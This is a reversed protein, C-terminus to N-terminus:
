QQRFVLGVVFEFEFKGDQKTAMFLQPSPKYDWVFVRTTDKDMYYKIPASLVGYDVVLEDNDQRVEFSGFYGTSSQAVYKGLMEAKAVSSLSRYPPNHWFRLGCGPVGEMIPVLKDGDRWEQYSYDLIDKPVDLFVGMIYSRIHDLPYSLHGDPTQTNSMFMVGLQAEPAIGTRTVHVTTDGSKDIYAHGWQGHGVYDFGYGSALTDGDPNFQHGEILFEDMFEKNVAYKGTIMNEVTAPDKLITVGDVTGKNLILRLLTALDDSSSLTSGSAIKHGEGHGNLQAEPAYVLDYPGLLEGGCEFHGYSTDNDGQADFASGFTHTMGLPDWIREKLYVDWEQGSVSKIVQGLIAFNANAYDHGGRLAHAPEIFALNTVLEEDTPYIGFFRGIDPLDNLGSNMACLDGITVYKEAYKDYLEFTPFHKKVPDDWSLKGEEVMIALGFSIFTKSVSGIQFLSSGTVKSDPDDSQSFTVFHAGEDLLKGFHTEMESEMGEGHKLYLISMADDLSIRGCCEYSNVFEEFCIAGDLNDNVQWIVEELRSKEQGSVAYGLQEYVTLLSKTDIQYKSSVLEHGVNIEDQLTALYKAKERMYLDLKADGESHTFRRRTSISEPSKADQM